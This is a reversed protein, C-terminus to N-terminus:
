IMKENIGMGFLAFDYKVPDAPDFKRLTGTLEEVARWDNQKRELLKLDRAIRGSHVDLPIYLASPPIKKWIGFDVGNNDERTMWRLYMNLRKASAGKEVRPLHKATRGPPYFGFFLERFCIIAEKLSGTENYFREFVSGIGGHERYVRQLSKMFYATDTGNFTRHVFYQVGKLDDQQHNLIFDAPSNDM